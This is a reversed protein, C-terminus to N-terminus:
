SDLIETVEGERCVGVEIAMTRDGRKGEKPSAKVRCCNRRPSRDWLGPDPKKYVLIRDVLAGPDPMRWRCTPRSDRHREYMTITTRRAADYRTASLYYVFPRQCPHRAVPRTNFAYATYDARRYWNLFTRAPMEMERPSTVGRAVLVAFGWAVSVTWPRQTEYCISQQMVGAPDLRVPGEFLRRLAAALPASIAFGGGGYAMGYSFYINQLHSESPSGIYYPQRHDFRSLFRALNDAIFVTDDDGMVFWRVSPLRLRFLSNTWDVGKQTAQSEGERCVGVELTRDWLGPDPKKYVLIRDVLAGPDPMRWRCTPRSDRHREYMTITTRRAADYRTASLYYVFPRQCPHRAVPRTNFAYATYDARRYWNLFTRAPMEMERPSTVGRGAPDLRVPGEFLRRLAAARSRVRPFIPQVVDLHHLSLLPAVPHATLLGLLDGYVDYQHFGPHRTLPVGLEAMCAQIRDDSGYLAPYRRLCRDQVRSLAAALPASIAFGGGGYAMGYSFYINQLHSESPSGIYYPQRHDFRSLFRALNDAIFVTDDDGMVFWRVSPLRLRFTESVIRSIRIASRDGRRHTYPFRSTDGSIKLPPLDRTYSSNFEKVPKDLWVFGRMQRPRWWLRIYEKRREWLKASAAIGFVIHQLGTATETLAAASTPRPPPPFPPPSSKAITNIRSAGRKTQNSSSLHILSDTTTSSTSCPPSSLLVHLPYVLYIVIISLVLFIMLRPISSSSSWLKADRSSLLSVSPKSNGNSWADKHKGGGGGKM